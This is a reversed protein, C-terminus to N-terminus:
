VWETLELREGDPGLFFAGRTGLAKFAMPQENLLVVGHEKLHNLAAAIDAVTFAVHNVVGELPAKSTGTGTKAVLELESDGVTLFALETNENLRIRERLRLGLVRQYWELSREMDTVMIGVHEIKNFM